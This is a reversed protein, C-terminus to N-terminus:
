LEFDNVCVNKRDINKDIEWIKSIANKIKQDDIYKIIDSLSVVGVIKNNNEILVRKIKKIEWLISLIM